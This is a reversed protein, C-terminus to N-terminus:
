GRSHLEAAGEDWGLNSRYMAPNPQVSHWNSHYGIGHKKLGNIGDERGRRELTRAKEGVVKFTARVNVTSLLEALRLAADDSAPLIYDETDFWLVVYVKAPGEAARIHASLVILLFVAYLFPRSLLLIFSRPIRKTKM